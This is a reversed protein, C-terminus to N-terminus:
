RKEGNLSDQNPVYIEGHNLSSTSVRFNKGMLATGWMAGINRAQSPEYDEDLRYSKPNARRKLWQCGYYTLAMLPVMFGIALCNKLAEPLAEHATFLTIFSFDSVLWYIGYVAALPSLMVFAVVVGTIIREGIPVRGDNITLSLDHEQGFIKGSASVSVNPNDKVFIGIECWEDANFCEFSVDFVNLSKPTLKLGVQDSGRFLIPEGLVQTEVGLIISLPHDKSIDTGLVHQSGKNWLRVNILYVNELSNGNLDTLHFPCSSAAEVIIRRGTTQLILSKAKDTQKAVLYSALYGLVSGAILLLVEKITILEQIQM